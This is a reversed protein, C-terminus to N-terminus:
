MRFFPTIRKEALYYEDFTLRNDISIIIKNFLIQIIAIPSCFDYKCCFLFAYRALYRSRMASCCFNLYNFQEPRSQPQILTQLDQHGQKVPDKRMATDFRTYSAFFNDIMHSEAKDVNLHSLDLSAPNHVSKQVYAVWFM